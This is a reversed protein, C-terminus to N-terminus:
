DKGIALALVASAIPGLTALAGQIADGATIGLEALFAQRLEQKDKDFEPMAHQKNVLDMGARYLEASAPLYVVLLATTLFIGYSFVIERPYAAAQVHNMAKSLWSNSLVAVVLIISLSTASRRLRTRIAVLRSLSANNPDRLEVFAVGIPVALLSAVASGLLTFYLAFHSVRAGLAEFNPVVGVWAPPGLRAVLAGLSIALAVVAWYSAALLRKRFVAVLDDRSLWLAATWLVGQASVIARWVQSEASSFAGNGICFGLIIWIALYIGSCVLPSLVIWRAAKSPGSPESSSVTSGM